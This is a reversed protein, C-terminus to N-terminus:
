KLIEKKEEYRTTQKEDFSLNNKNYINYKNNDYEDESKQSINKLCNIDNNIYENKNKRIKVSTNAPINM